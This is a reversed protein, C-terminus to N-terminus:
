TPIKKSNQQMFRCMICLRYHVRTKYQAQFVWTLNIVSCDFSYFPFRIMLLKRIKLSLLTHRVDNIDNWCILVIHPMTVM